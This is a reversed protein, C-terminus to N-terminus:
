SNQDKIKHQTQVDEELYFFFVFVLGSSCYQIWVVVDAAAASSVCDPVDRIIGM